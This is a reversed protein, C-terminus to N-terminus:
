AKAHRRRFDDALKGLIKPGQPMPAPQGLFLYRLPGAQGIAVILVDFSRTSWTELQRRDSAYRGAQPNRHRVKKRFSRM